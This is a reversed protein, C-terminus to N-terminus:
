LKDEKQHYFQYIYYITFIVTILETIPMVWWIAEGGFLSPLFFLLIICIIFGRLLSIIISPIPKSISQLFSTNYMNIGQVFICLFYIRIVRIGYDLDISSIDVFLSICLTTCFYVFLYVCISIIVVLRNSMKHVEKVRDFRSAGINYSVIPQSANAVGNLLCVAAMLTNAIVSYIIIHQDSLYYLIQMNFVFTVVGQSMELLFSNFGNQYIKIIDKIKIGKITFNMTNVKTFFHVSCLIISILSSFATAIMAGAMGWNFIFIFLYDLIINLLSGLTAAIMALRPNHDNKVLCQLTPSFIFVPACIMLIYGYEKCLEISSHNAGLMYCIDEFFICGIVSLLVSTIGALILTTSFIMNAQHHKGNGNRISMLVSGGVGYLYGLGYYLSYLPLLINLAILGQGGVGHGIMMTDGIVYFAIFLTSASAPILYHIFLRKINTDLLNM